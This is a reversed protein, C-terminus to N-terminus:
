NRPVQIDLSKSGGKEVKFTLGSQSRLNYNRPILNKESGYRQTVTRDTSDTVEPYVFTGTIWVDYNGEPVGDGDKLEGLTFSGDKHIKGSVRNKDSELMIQGQELPSGDEFTVTGKIKIKNSCGTFVLVAVLILLILNNKENLIM